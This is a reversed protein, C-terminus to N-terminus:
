LPFIYCKTVNQQMKPVQLGFSNFWVGQEHNAIARRVYPITNEPLADCKIEEGGNLHGAVVVVNYNGDEYGTNFRSLLLIQDNKLLFVHVASPFTSRTSHM